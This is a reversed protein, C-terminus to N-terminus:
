KKVPWLPLVDKGLQEKLVEAMAVYIAASGTLLGVYGGITKFDAIGTAENLALLFFLVALSGFVFQMM